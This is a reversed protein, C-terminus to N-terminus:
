SGHRERATIVGKGSIKRAAISFETEGKMEFSVVDGDPVSLTMTGALRTLM